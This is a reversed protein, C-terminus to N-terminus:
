HTDESPKGHQAAGTSDSLIGVINDGIDGKPEEVIRGTEKGDHYFIFTPVKEINLGATLQDRWGNSRPVAIFKLKGSLTTSDIISLFMPVWMHSDSCWSGFVVSVSDGADLSDIDHILEMHPKYLTYNEKYWLSDQFASREVPGVLIKEHSISDTAFTQANAEISFTVTIIVALILRM